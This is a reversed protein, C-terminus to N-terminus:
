IGLNKFTQPFMLQLISIVVPIIATLITVAHKIKGKLQKEVLFQEKDPLKIISSLCRVPELKDNDKFSATIL